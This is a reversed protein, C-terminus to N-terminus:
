RAILNDFGYHYYNSNRTSITLVANCIPCNGPCEVIAQCNTCKFFDVFLDQDQAYKNM